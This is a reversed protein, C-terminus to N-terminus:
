TKKFQRENTNTGKMYDAIDSSDDPTDISETLWETIDIDM